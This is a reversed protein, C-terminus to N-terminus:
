RAYEWEEEDEPEPKLLKELYDKNQDLFTVVWPQLYFDFYEGKLSVSANQIMSLSKLHNVTGDTIRLSLTRTDSEYMIRIIRKEALSLTDLRKQAKKGRFPAWRFYRALQTGVTGVLFISWSLIFLISILPKYKSCLESLGMFDMFSAPLFVLVGTVIGIVACIYKYGSGKIISAIDKVDVNVGM